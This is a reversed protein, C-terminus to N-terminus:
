IRYINRYGTVQYERGDYTKRTEPTPTAGYGGIGEHNTTIMRNHEDTGHLLTSREWLRSLNLTHSIARNFAFPDSRDARAYNRCAEITQQTLM